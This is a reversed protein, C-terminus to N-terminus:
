FNEKQFAAKSRLSTLAKQIEDPSRGDIQIIEDSTAAHGILGGLVGGAVAGGIGICVWAFSSMAESAGFGAGFGRISKRSDPAMSKGAFFGATAGLAVGIISGIPNFKARIIRISILDDAYANIGSLTVAEKLVLTRGRVALLEGKVEKGDKKQLVLQAGVAALASASLSLLIMVALIAKKMKAVEMMGM